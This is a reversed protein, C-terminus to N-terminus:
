RMTAFPHDDGRDMAGALWLPRGSLRLDAVDSVALLWTDPDKLLGRWCTTLVGVWSAGRVPWEMRPYGRAFLKAALGGWALEVPGSHVLRYDLNATALAPLGCPPPGSLNWAPPREDPPAGGADDERLRLDAAATVDPRLFLLRGAAPGPRGELPVGTVWYEGNEGWGPVSSSARPVEWRAGGFTSEDVVRRCQKTIWLTFMAQPDNTM